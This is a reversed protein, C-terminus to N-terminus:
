HRGSLPELEKAVLKEIINLYKKELGKFEIVKITINFDLGKAYEYLQLGQTSVVKYYGLHQNIRGVINTLGFKIISGKKDKKRGTVGGQRIGVYLVNSNTNNNTAPVKKSSKLTRYDNLLNNLVTAKEINDLEFWYLCHNEVTNLSTFLHSLRPDSNPFCTYNEHDILQNTNFVIKHYFSDDDKRELIERVILEFQKSIIESQSKVLM